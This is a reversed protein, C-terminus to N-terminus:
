QEIAQKIEAPTTVYQIALLVSGRFTMVTIKEEQAPFKLGLAEDRILLVTHPFKRMKPLAFAETIFNPMQSIDAIFAANHHGLYDKNQAALYENVTASTGKEFAMIVTKPMIKLAIHKGFQDQLELPAVSQGVQYAAGYLSMALLAFLVMKKM